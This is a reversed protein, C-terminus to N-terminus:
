RALLGQVREVLKTMGDPKSLVLDVGIASTLSQGLAENYMTFLVIPVGPMSKKLVSAAEVGNMNPMAVDLLILDPKLDRAKQIGEAGDSAEGCVRFSPEKELFARIIQRVPLSDDIILIQKSDM